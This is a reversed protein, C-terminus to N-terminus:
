QCGGTVEVVQGTRTTVFLRDTADITEFLRLSETSDLPVPLTVPRWSPLGGDAGPEARSLGEDSV